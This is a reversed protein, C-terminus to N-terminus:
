QRGADLAQHMKEEIRLRLRKPRLVRCDPQWSLVWRVVQKWGGTEIRLEVSGDRREVIKQSHHWVRERVYGAVAPSFLVRLKFPKEGQMIGFGDALEREVDFSKPTRFHRGTQTISRIRSVAFTAVQGKRVHRGVAYWNGHYAVLHYPEFEYEGVTGNFKEYSMCIAEGADVAAAVSSWVHPDVVVYDDSVVAFRDTLAASGITMRGELSESIKGLAAEMDAALPTGRFVSLLKRAICLSFVERRSLQVAPLHWTEDSLRYGHASRDYEIPAREEDRLLDLDRMVTPRSVGLDERFTRANPLRGSASGERILELIRRIRAQQPRSVKKM